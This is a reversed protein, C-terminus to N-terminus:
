GAIGGDVPVPHIKRLMYRKPSKNGNRDKKYIVTVDASIYKGMRVKLPDIGEAIQLQIRRDSITPIIAAWGVEPRDLDAARVVIAIGDFDEFPDETEEKTYNPPILNVVDAPITIQGGDEDLFVSGAAGSEKPRTLKSVHRKLEEKNKVAAEVIGLLEDRSFGTEKGLNNFSNEIQISTSEAPKEQKGFYQYAVYLIAAALAWKAIKSFDMNKLGLATRLKEINREAEKGKGFIFRLSFKEDLSGFEIATLMIEADKIHIDLMKSLIFKAQKVVGELGLLSDALM